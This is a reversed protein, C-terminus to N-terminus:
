RVGRGRRRQKRKMAVEIPVLTKEYLLFLHERESAFGTHRYLRDVTRDLAQQARSIKGRFGTWKLQPFFIM